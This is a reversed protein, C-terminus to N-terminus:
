GSFARAERKRARFQDGIRWRTQGLLWSKFSGRRPATNFEGIKRAVAIVTEQVVDQAEADNLGAHRAVNYILEWYREFFEQWGVSDDWRKLRFLLSHRTPVSDEARLKMVVRRQEAVTQVLQGREPSTRKLLFVVCDSSPTLISAEYPAEFAFFIEFFGTLDKPTTVHYVYSCAVVLCGWPAVGVVLVVFM